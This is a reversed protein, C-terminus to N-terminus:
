TSLDSEFHQASNKTKLTMIIYVLSVFKIDNFLNNCLM